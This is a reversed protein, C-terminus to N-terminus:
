LTRGLHIAEAIEYFMDGISTTIHKVLYVPALVLTKWSFAQAPCAFILALLMFTILIVINRRLNM